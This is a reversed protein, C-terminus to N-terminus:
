PPIYLCRQFSFVKVQQELAELDQKFKIEDLCMNHKDYLQVNNKGQAKAYYLAQDARHILEESEYM